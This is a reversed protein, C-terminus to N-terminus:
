MTKPNACTVALVGRVHIDRIYLASVSVQYGWRPGSRLRPPTTLCAKVRAYSDSTFDKAIKAEIGDVRLQKCMVDVFSQKLQKAEASTLLRKNLFEIYSGGIDVDRVLDKVQQTTLATYPEGYLSLQSKAVFVEDLYDVNELALAALSKTETSYHPQGSQPNPRAGPFYLGPAPNPRRVTVQIDCPDTEIGYQNELAQALQESSYALLAQQDGYQLVSPLGEGTYARELEGLYDRAAAAWAQKDAESAASLFQELEAKSRKTERARLVESVSFCKQMDMTRDLSVPLQSFDEDTGRRQYRSVMFAFDDVLKEYQAAM